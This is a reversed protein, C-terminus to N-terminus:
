EEQAQTSELTKYGFELGEIDSVKYKTGDTKEQIISNQSTYDNSLKRQGILTENTGDSVVHGIDTPQEVFKASTTVSIANISETSPIELNEPITFKFLDVDNLAYSSNYTIDKDATLDDVNEFNQTGEIGPTFMTKSGNSTPLIGVISGNGCWSNNVNGTTDNVAIDDFSVKLYTDVYGDVCGSYIYKPNTTGTNGNYTTILKDNIRLQFIGNNADGVKLRVDLKVWEGYSLYEYNYVVEGGCYCSLRYTKEDIRIMYIIVNCYQERKGCLAANSDIDKEIERDTIALPTIKTTRTTLTTDTMVPNVWIRYFLESTDNCYKTLDYKLMCCQYSSTAGEKIQLSYSKQGYGGRPASFGDASYMKVTNNGSEAIFTAVDLYSTRNGSTFTTPFTKGETEFGDQLIRAM